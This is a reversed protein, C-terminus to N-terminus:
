PSSRDLFSGLDCRTRPDTSRSTMIMRDARRARRCCGRGGSTAAANADRLRSRSFSMMAADSMPAEDEDGGHHRPDVCSSGDCASSSHCYPYGSASPRANGPAPARRTTTKRRFSQSYGHTPRQAHPPPLSSPDSLRQPSRRPWHSSVGPAVFSVSAIPSISASRGCMRTANPGNSRNTASAASRNGPIRMMVSRSVGPAV